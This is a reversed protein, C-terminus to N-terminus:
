LHLCYRRSLIATSLLLGKDGRWSHGSGTVWAPLVQPRQQRLEPREYLGRRGAPLGLNGLAGPVEPRVLHGDALVDKLCPGRRTHEDCLFPRADESPTNYPRKLADRPPSRGSVQGPADQSACGGTSPSQAQKKRRLHDLIHKLAMTCLGNIRRDKLQLLREGVLIALVALEDIIQRVM